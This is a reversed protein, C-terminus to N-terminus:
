LGFATFAAATAQALDSRESETRAAALARPLDLGAALASHLSLMYQTAAQDNVKCVSSAIGVTGRSILASNLGLIEQAGTPSGVGSDCASLIIRHPPEHLSDLDHVTLPGDHLTLNSFLPNDPRFSGHAALHVLRAGDIWHLVNRVTADAGELLVAHPYRKSIERIETAGGVLRPGCVLVVQDTASRRTARARLWLAGSPTVSVPRDRLSPLLGWPTTHFSTPPCVVVERDGLWAVAPGLLARELDAGLGESLQLPVGHSIGHLFFHATGLAQMARRRSGIHCRRVVGDTVGVASLEDDVDVIEIFTVDQGVTLLEDLDFDTRARAPTAHAAARILTKHRVRNELTARQRRLEDTPVGHAEAEQLRREIDRVAALERVATSDKGPRVPSLALASGRSRESTRLITRPHGGQVAHRMAMRTLETGHTTGLARFELSGFQACYEDVADLGKLCANLARRRDTDDYMLARALWGTAKVLPAGNLRYKSVAALQDHWTPDGLRKAVRAALLRALSAEETRHEELESAVSTVTRLLAPTCEGMEFRAQADILRAKALWSVRQQRKFLDKAQKAQARAGSYDKSAVLASAYMLLLEARKTPQLSTDQLATEVVRMAESTLGTTLLAHAHDLALDPSRIQLEDYDRAAATFLRIARPIDNRAYAIVGLNHVVFVAELRQDASEFLRHASRLDKEARSIDGRALHVLARSNLARGEWVTDGAYRIGELARNIEALADGQRGLLRLLFAHRMRVKALTEGTALDAAATILSLGRRTSGAMVHAAGLTALVDAVRQHDGCRRALTLAHQLHDLAPALEGRDRLVIGIAQHAMSATEWTPDAILVQTARALAARPRNLAETLLDPNLASNDARPQIDSQRRAGVRPM